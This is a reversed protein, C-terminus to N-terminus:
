GRNYYLECYIYAEGRATLYKGHVSSIIDLNEIDYCMAIQEIADDLAEPGTEGIGISVEDYSTHMASAGPYYDPYDIKYKIEYDTIKM